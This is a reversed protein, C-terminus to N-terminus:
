QAEIEVDDVGTYNIYDHLIRDIDDSVQEEAMERADEENSATVTVRETFTMTATVQVDIEYERERKALQLWGPLLGNVEEIIEDFDDCWGRRDAEHNLRESIIEMAKLADRQEHMRSENELAFIRVLQGVTLDKSMLLSLVRYDVKITKDTTERPDVRWLIERTGSSTQHIYSDLSAILTENSVGVPITTENM